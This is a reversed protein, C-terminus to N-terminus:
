FQFEQFNHLRRKHQGNYQSCLYKSQFISVEAEYYTNYHDIFCQARETYETISENSWWERQLNGDSNYLRGSNDFGHSFEHGLVSGFAGYNLARRLLKM